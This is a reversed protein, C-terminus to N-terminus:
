KITFSGEYLNGYETMYSVIYDGPCGSIGLLIQSEIASDFFCTWVDGTFSNVVSMEVEGIDSSITTRIASLVGYYTTEIPVNILTRGLRDNGKYQIPIKKETKEDANMNFVFSPLLAVVLLIIKRM